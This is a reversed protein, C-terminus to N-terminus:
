PKVMPADSSEPHCAATSFPGALDEVGNGSSDGPYPRTKPRVGLSSVLASPGCSRSSTSPGLRFTVLAGRRRARPRAPLECRVPLGRTEASLYKPKRDWRFWRKLAALAMSDQSVADVVVWHDVELTETNLRSVASEEGVFGGGGEWVAFPHFFAMLLPDGVFQDTAPDVRLVLPRDGSGHGVSPDIKSLWGHM